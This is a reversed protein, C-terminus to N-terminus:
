LVEPAILLFLLEFVQCSVIIKIILIKLQEGTSPKLSYLNAILM